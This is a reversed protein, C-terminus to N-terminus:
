NILYNSEEKEERKTLYFQTILLPILKVSYDCWFVTASHALSHRARTGVQSRRRSRARCRCRTWSSAATASSARAPSAGTRSASARRRSTRGTRCLPPRHLPSDCHPKRRYAFKTPHAATRLAAALPWYLGRNSSSSFFGGPDCRTASRHLPLSFDSEISSIGGHLYFLFASVRSTPQLYIVNLLPSFM